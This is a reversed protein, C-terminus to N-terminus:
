SCGPSTRPGRSRRRADPMAATPTMGRSTRRTIMRSGRCEIRTRPSPWDHMWRGDLEGEAIMRTPATMVTMWRIRWTRLWALDASWWWSGSSPSRLGGHCGVALVALARRGAVGPGARPAPAVALDPDGDDAHAVARAAQDLAAVVVLVGLLVVEDRAQHVDVEAAIVDLVDLEHGGEVDVLVLDALVQGLRDVGLGVVRVDELLDLVGADGDLAPHGVVAEALVEALDDLLRGARRGVDDADELLALDVDHDAVQRDAALLGGLPVDLLRDLGADAEDVRDRHEDAALRVPLAAEGDAPRGTMPSSMLLWTPAVM